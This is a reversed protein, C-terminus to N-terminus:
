HKFVVESPKEYLTVTRLADEPLMELHARTGDNFSFSVGGDIVLSADFCRSKVRVSKAFGRPKINDKRLPTVLLQDRITYVM